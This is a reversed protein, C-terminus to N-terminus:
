WQPDRWLDGDQKLRTTPYYETLGAPRTLLALHTNEADLNPDALAAGDRYQGFRHHM